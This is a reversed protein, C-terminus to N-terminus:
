ATKGTQRIGTKRNRKAQKLLAAQIKAVLANLEKTSLDALDGKGGGSMSIHISVNNNVFTGSKLNPALTGGYQGMAAQAGLGKSAKQIQSWLKNVSKVGGQGGLISQALADGQQPGAAILQALVAKNLHGKRLKAIDKAFSQETKLYDKMQDQVSQAQQTPDGQAYAAVYANWDKANFGKTGPGAPHMQAATLGSPSTLNMNGFIGTGKGSPDYGQGYAAAQAVGQAYKIEQSIRSVLQQAIKQAGPGINKMGAAIGDIISVSINKLDKSNKMDRGLQSILTDILHERQPSVGHVPAGPHIGLSRMLPHPGTVPMHPVGSGGQTGQMQQELMALLAPNWQAMGSGLWYRMPGYIPLGAFGGAAFGPVNHAGLFPAVASVLHKPVVAEGPELMAPFIDGGGYGPIRMGAQAGARLRMNPAGTGAFTAPAIGGAPTGAAIVQNITRNITNIEITVVKNHLAAIEANLAAVAGAGQAHAAAQVTKSRLAAIANNLTKVQDSGSAQVQAKVVKNQLKGLASQVQSTDAQVRVKAYAGSVASNIAAQISATSGAGSRQAVEKTMDLGAAKPIGSNALFTAYDRLAGTNVSKGGSHLISDMFRNQLDAGHTTLGQALGGVIGSGIQQTFQQADRPIKSAAVTGQNMNRNYAKANEAFQNTWDAVKKFDQQQNTGSIAPGGFEQAITSLMSLGAPSKRMMPLLQQIQFAAMQTTQGPGLAGMTQMNRLWDTQSGLQPILGSQPNTLVNWAGAGQKSTFSTLANAFAKFAPPAQLKIGGRSSTVQAGGLTGFFGSAGAAGGTVLQLLQDYAQNVAGVESHQLGAMATQAGVAAGFMGSGHVGTFNMAQYGAQLNAIMTKAQSSLKGNKEFASGLQLQAMTAVDYAKGMDLTSGTIGKWVNAVQQGAGLASVMTSSLNKLEQQAVSFNSPTSGGLGILSGLTGLGGSFAETLGQWAEGPRGKGIGAGIAGFGQLSRQVPSMSGASTAPVKGAAQMASLISPVAQAFGMQNIDQMTRDAALQAPSKWTVGKNILFASAALAGIDVAGLSGMAGAVGRGAITEGEKAALGAAVDEATATRAVQGFLGGPIRALGRAAGGVLAPGWRAGGEFSLIPGLAPGLWGTLKALGGTAGQLTSLLDGGVGPLNPATHLFIDGVNALVDGLQQLYGTGGSVIDGLQKGLGHQFEQTMTAAFRDFMAVTNTGLQVFANGAGARLMNVGAGALEFTGGTALDQATQLPSNKLGWAQGTTIGLSDGLSESTAFIAKARPILQEGGQMGVLTGMGAAVTAPGVTALLENSLMMVWHAVPYWKKIFGGVAASEVAARGLDFSGGGAANRVAGLASGALSGAGAAAGGLIGGVGGANRVADGIRGTVGSVGAGAAATAAAVGRAISGPLSKVGNIFDRGMDPRELLHALAAFGGGAIMGPIASSYRRSEDIVRMVRAINESSGLIDEQQGPRRPPWPFGTYTGYERHPDPTWNPNWADEPPASRRGRSVLDAAERAADRMEQILSQRPQVTAATRLRSLEAEAQAAGAHASTSGTRLIDMLQSSTAIRQIGAEAAEADQTVGQLKKRFSDIGRQAIGSAFSKEISKGTSEIQQQLKVHEAAVEGLATMQISKSAQVVKAIAEYHAKQEAAAEKAAAAQINRSAQAVKAVTEYYEQQAQKQIGISAVAIRSVDQQAEATRESAAALFEYGNALGRVRETYAQVSTGLSDFEKQVRLLRQYQGETGALAATVKIQMDALEGFSRRADENARAMAIAALVTEDAGRKYDSADFIAKQKVDPLGTAPM